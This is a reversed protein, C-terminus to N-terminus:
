LGCLSQEGQRLVHDELDDLSSKMMSRMADYEITLTFSCVCMCSRKVILATELAM